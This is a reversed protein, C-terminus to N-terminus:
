LPSGGSDVSGRKVYLVISSLVTIVVCIWPLKTMIFDINDYDGGEAFIGSEKVEGYVNALVAAILVLVFIGVINVIVFVPHSPLVWSTVLLGLTLGVVVFVVLYDFSAWSAQFTDISARSENTHMGGSELKSDFQDLIGKGLLVSIAFVTIFILVFVIQQIQGKKNKRLFKFNM